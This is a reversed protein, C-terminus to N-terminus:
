WSSVMHAFGAAGRNMGDVLRLAIVMEEEGHCGLVCDRESEGDFRRVLVREM